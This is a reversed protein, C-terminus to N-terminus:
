TCPSLSPIPQSLNETLYCCLRGILWPFEWCLGIRQPDGQILGKLILVDTVMKITNESETFNDPLREICFTKLRLNLNSNKYGANASDILAAIYAEPSTTVAAFEPSYYWMVSLEVPSTTRDQQNHGETFTM